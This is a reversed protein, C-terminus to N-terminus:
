NAIGERGVTSSRLRIRTGLSCSLHTPRARYSSSLAPGFGCTGPPLYRILDGPRRRYQREDQIALPAGRYSEQANALPTERTYTLVPIRVNKGLPLNPRIVPDEATQTYPPGGWGYEHSVSRVIRSALTSISPSNIWCFEPTVDIVLDSLQGSRKIRGTISEDAVVM